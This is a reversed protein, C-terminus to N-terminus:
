LTKQLNSGEEKTVPACFRPKYTDEWSGFLLRKILKNRTIPEEWYDEWVSKIAEMKSFEEETFSVSFRRM